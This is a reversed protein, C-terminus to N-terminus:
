GLVLSPFMLHLTDEICNVKTGTNLSLSGLHVAQINIPPPLPAPVPRPHSLTNGERTGYCGATRQSMTKSSVTSCPWGWMVSKLM